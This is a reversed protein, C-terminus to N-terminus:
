AQEENGYSTHIHNRRHGLLRPHRPLYGKGTNYQITKSAQLGQDLARWARDVLHGDPSRTPGGVLWGPMHAVSQDQDTRLPRSPAKPSKASCVDFESSGNQKKHGQSRNESSERLMHGKDSTLTEKGDRISPLHALRPSASPRLQHTCENGKRILNVHGRKM